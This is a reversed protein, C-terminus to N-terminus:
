LNVIKNKSKDGESRKFFSILNALNRQLETPKTIVPAFKEGNTKEVYVITARMKELGFKEVMEKMARQETKNGFLREHDPNVAKFLDILDNVDKGTFANAKVLQTDKDKYSTTNSSQTDKLPLPKRQNKVNMVTPSGDTIIVSPYIWQSKDLLYYVSNMWKGGHREKKIEIVRHKVLLKIYERVTKETVSIEEAITKQSPYCKQEDNDAHRCLSVYVAICTAGFHKGFGNLYENDLYFWGKSRKERVQFLRQQM